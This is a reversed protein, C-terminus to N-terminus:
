LNLENKLQQMYPATHEFFMRYGECLWNLGPEGCADTLLRNKPCEGRCLQLWRCERCQRPLSTEKQQGFARQRPLEILDALHQERINGLRYAASVFHDCSYVEGNWEMALAHGCQRGLTCVGPVEGVWNALTADFLQVFVQGVDDADWWADFVGNCFGGWQLASVSEPTMQLTHPNREVIPTFQLYRCGISKFFSYFAEPQGANLSNVVSMANWQVGFRQLKEIGSMVQRFTPGGGRMRRFADHLPEPGDISVGVLWEEDHLFRCWDDTLLTGNTQLCNSVLHGQAYQQELRMAKRYFGLPLLTPEGGHWVFVVEHTPQAEIYQRIATELVSFDMQAKNAADPYLEKRDLYYCYRCALNCRAGAPKLMLSFPRLYPSVAKM